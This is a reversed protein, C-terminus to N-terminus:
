RVLVSVIKKLSKYRKQSIEMVKETIPAFISPDDGMM